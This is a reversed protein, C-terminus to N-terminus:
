PTGLQVSWQDCLLGVVFFYLVTRVWCAGYFSSFEVSGVMVVVVMSRLIDAALLRGILGCSLFGGSLYGLGSGLRARAGM